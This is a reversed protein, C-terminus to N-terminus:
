PRIDLRSSVSREFAVDILLQVLRVLEVDESVVVESLEVDVSIAVAVLEAPLEVSV